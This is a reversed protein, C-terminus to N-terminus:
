QKGAASPEDEPARKLARLAVLALAAVAVGLGLYLVWQNKMLWPSAPEAAKTAIFRPNREPPGLRAEVAAPRNITPFVRAYDYEPPRAERNGYFLRYRQDKEFPFYVYRPRTFVAIRTVALPADDGNAIRVRVYRGFSEGCEVELHSQQYRREAYRFIFGGGAQGYMKDDDSADVHVARAFNADAAEFVLKSTALHKAGLDLVYWTERRQESRTEKQVPHERLGSAPPATELSVTAGALDIPKDGAPAGVVVRLYRRKTDPFAVTTFRQEVDGTFAFIAGNDRVASWTKGDDSGEVTVACRFNRAPTDLTIRNAVPPDEGLDVTLESAEAGRKGRNIVRGAREEVQPRVKEPVYIAYGIDDTEGRLVRLDQLGPGAAHDWVDDDLELRANKGAAGEAVKVDRYFSGAEPDFDARATNAALGMLGIIAAVLLHAAPRGVRRTLHVDRRPQARRTEQGAAPTYRSAPAVEDRRPPDPSGGRLRQLPTPMVGGSRIVNARRM